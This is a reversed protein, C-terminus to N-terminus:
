VLAPHSLVCNKQTTNYMTMTPFLRHVREFVMDRNELHNTLASVSEHTPSSTILLSQDLEWDLVCFRLIRNNEAHNRLMIYCDPMKSEFSSWNNEQPPILIGNQAIVNKTNNQALGFFHYIIKDQQFYFVATVCSTNGQQELMARDSFVQSYQFTMPQRDKYAEYMGQFWSGSRARVVSFPLTFTIGTIIRTIIRM